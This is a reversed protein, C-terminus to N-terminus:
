ADAADVHGGDLALGEHAVPGGVDVDVVVRVQLQSAEVLPAQAALPVEVVRVGDGLQLLGCAGAVVLEVALVRPEDVVVSLRGDRQPVQQLELVECGDREVLDLGDIGDDPAEGAAGHGEAGDRPLRVRRQGDGHVPQAAAGVGALTALVRRAVLRKGLPSLMREAM